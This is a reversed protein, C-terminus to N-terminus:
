VHYEGVGLVDESSNNDKYLKYSGVNMSQFEKYKTLDWTVHKTAWSDIIWCNANLDVILAEVYVLVHSKARVSVMKHQPYNRALHGLEKFKYYRVNALDVPKNLQHHKNPLNIIRNQNEGQNPQRNPPNPNPNPLNSTRNRLNKKQLNHM